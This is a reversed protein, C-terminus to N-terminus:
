PLADLFVPIAASRLSDPYDRQFQAMLERARASRMKQDGVGARAARVQLIATIFRVEEASPEHPYERSLREGTEILLRLNADDPHIPKLPDDRFGDYFSGLLFGAQAEQSRKGKPDLDYAKKYLEVPAAFRGFADLWVLPHGAQKLRDVLLQSPLGQIRGHSAIDRNLLERVEDQLKALSLAADARSSVADRSRLVGSFRNTQTIYRDAAEPTILEHAWSTEVTAALGTLSIVSAVLFSSLRRIVIQDIKKHHCKM